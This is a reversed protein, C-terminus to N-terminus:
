VVPGDAGLLRLGDILLGWALAAFAVPIIAVGNLRSAERTLGLSGALM